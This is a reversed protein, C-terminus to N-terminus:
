SRDVKIKFSDGGDSEIFNFNLLKDTGERLVSLIVWHAKDHDQFWTKGEPDYSKLGQLGYFIFYLWASYHLDDWEKKRGPFFIEFTKRYHMLYLAVLDARCEEYSM